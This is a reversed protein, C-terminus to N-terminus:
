KRQKFLSKQSNLNSWIELESKQILHFSESSIIQFPSLFVKQEFFKLILNKGQLMKGGKFIILLALFYEDTKYLFMLM